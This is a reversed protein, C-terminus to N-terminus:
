SKLLSIMFSLIKGASDGNTQPEGGKQISSILEKLEDMYMDNRSFGKPLPFNKVSKDEGYFVLSSEEHTYNWEVRGKTGFIEARKISPRTLYDIHFSVSPCGEFSSSIETQDDVDVDLKGTTSLIADGKLPNGFFWLATDMDHSLTLM